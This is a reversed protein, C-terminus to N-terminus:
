MCTNKNKVSVVVANQSVWGCAYKGWGSFQAWYKLHESPAVSVCSHGYGCSNEVEVPWQSSSWRTSHPTLYSGIFGHVNVITPYKMWSFAYYQIRMCNIWFSVIQWFSTKNTLTIIHNHIIVREVIKISVTFVLPMNIWPWYWWWSSIYIINVLYLILRSLMLKMAVAWDLQM